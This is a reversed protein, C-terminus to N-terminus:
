MHSIQLNMSLMTFFLFFDPTNIDQIV